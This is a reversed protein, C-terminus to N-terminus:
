LLGRMLNATYALYGLCLALGEYRNIRGPRGFGFGILFLSVTFAFMVVLDRALVEAGVRMPSILGALGVVALTNFLNSGIINGIAIDDEGKRVAAISSALEPLSTGVAVITLGIIMDDVGLTVAIKVAGWVLIRSFVLLLLLGAIMWFVARWLPIPHSALEEEMEGALTDNGQRMGQWVSWLLLAAFLALLLAAEVRSVQQDWLQWAAVVTVLTLLPLEQRLVTSRVTLPRVLATIGLILGINAINSGYANGLALGPSGQWAALVSVVMEPASTGFGVIVMGILLSPMGLHRAVAASGDVFRNASWVLLPLSIAVAVLALTM